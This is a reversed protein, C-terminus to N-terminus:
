AKTAKFEKYANYTAWLAAGIQFILLIKLSFKWKAAVNSTKLAMVFTMVFAILSWMIISIIPITYSRLGSPNDKSIWTEWFPIKNESTKLSPNLNFEIEKLFKHKSIYNSVLLIEVMAFLWLFQSLILFKLMLNISDSEKSVYSIAVGLMGLVTLMAKWLNKMEDRVDQYIYRVYSYEKDVKGEVLYVM